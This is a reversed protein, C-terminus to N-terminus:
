KSGQKREQKEMAYDIQDRDIKMVVDIFWDHDAGFFGNKLAYESVKSWPISLLGGLGSVPRDTRVKLYHQLIEQELWDLDPTEVKPTLNEPM